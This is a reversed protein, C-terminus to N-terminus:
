TGVAKQWEAIVARGNKTNWLRAMVFNDPGSNPNCGFTERCQKPKFGSDHITCRKDKLFACPGKIPKKGGFLATLIDVMSMDAFDPADAGECGNSAGALVYIKDDNGLEGSPELWDRMIKRAHGAKIARSAEAPTFWGPYSKCASVCRDCTCTKKM